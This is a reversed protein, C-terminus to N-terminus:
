DASWLDEEYLDYSQRDTMGGFYSFFINLSAYLFCPTIFVQDHFMASATAAGNPLVGQSLLQPQDVAVDVAEERPEPKMGQCVVHAHGQSRNAPLPPPPQQQQQEVMKSTADDEEEAVVL